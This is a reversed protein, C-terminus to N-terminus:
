AIWKQKGFQASSNKFRLAHVKNSPAMRTEFIRVSTSSTVLLPPYPSSLIVFLFECGCSLM